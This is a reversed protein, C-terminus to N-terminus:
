DQLDQEADLPFSPVGAPAVGSSIPLGARLRAQHHVPHRIPHLGARPGHVSILSGFRLLIKLILVIFLILPNREHVNEEEDQVDQSDHFDQKPNVPNGIQRLRCDGRNGVSLLIKLIIM